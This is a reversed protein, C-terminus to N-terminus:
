HFVTDVNSFSVCSDSFYENSATHCPIHYKTQAIKKTM